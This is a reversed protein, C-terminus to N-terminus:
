CLSVKLTDVTCLISYLRDLKDYEGMRCWYEVHVCEKHINTHTPKQTHYHILRNRPRRPAYSSTHWLTHRLTHHPLTQPPTHTHQCVCVCVCVCVLNSYQYHLRQTFIPRCCFCCFTVCVLVHADISLMGVWGGVWGGVCVCVCARLRLSVQNSSRGDPNSRTATHHFLITRM